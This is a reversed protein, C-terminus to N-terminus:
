RQWKSSRKNPVKIRRLTPNGNDNYYKVVIEDAELKQGIEILKEDDWTKGIKTMVDRWFKNASLADETTLCKTYAVGPAYDIIDALEDDYKKLEKKTMSILIAPTLLVSRPM